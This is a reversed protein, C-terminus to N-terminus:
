HHACCHTRVWPARNQDDTPVPLALVTSLAIFFVVIFSLRMNTEAPGAQQFEIQAHTNLQEMALGFEFFRNIAVGPEHHMVHHKLHTANLMHGMPRQGM